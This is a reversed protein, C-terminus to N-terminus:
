RMSYILKGIKRRLSELQIGRKQAAKLAMKSVIPEPDQSLKRIIEPPCNSENAIWERIFFNEHNSLM